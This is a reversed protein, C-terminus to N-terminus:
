PQAVKWRANPLEGFMEPAYLAEARTPPLAFDGANNLRLTYEVVSTGKPLYDWYARYSDQGREVFAPWAGEAGKGEGQQAVISDRGLGNGLITAGAPIPDSLAVWTMDASAQVELRVRVVDGRQWRQADAGQVATVTKRLVYGANLPQTRPVAAVSQLAVWPKGTGRHQVNLQGLRREGWPLFLTRPPLGETLGAGSGVPLATA